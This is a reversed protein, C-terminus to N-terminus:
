KLCLLSWGRTEVKSPGPLAPSQGAMLAAVLAKRMGDQDDRGGLSATVRAPPTASPSKLKPAQGSPALLMVVSVSAEKWAARADEEEEGGL